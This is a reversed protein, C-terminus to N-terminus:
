EIYGLGRLRQLVHEDTEPALHTGATLSDRQREVLSSIWNLQQNLSAVADPQAATLNTLEAPDADLDFLEDPQGDVQILKLNDKVLSRRVSLVRFPEL